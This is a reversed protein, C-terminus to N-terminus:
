ESFGAAELADARERFDVKRICRGDRFTHVEYLLDNVEAGSARGRGRYSVGMVVADGADIIEEIVTELDDWERDWREWMERVAAPSHAPGEQGVTWVVDPALHATAGAYDGRRYAEISRRTAEVNEESMGACYGALTRFRNGM